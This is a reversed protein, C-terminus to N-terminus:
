FLTESAAAGSPKEPRRVDQVPENKADEPAVSSPGDFILVRSRRKERDQWGSFDMQQTARQAALQSVDLLWIDYRQTTVSKVTESRELLHVFRLHRLLEMRDIMNRDSADVLFYARKNGRCFDTLQNILVRLQAAEEPADKQMDDLKAPALVGAARNVDEVTVRHMGAKTTSPRNRAEEIAAGAITLYDRAICGSALAMRDLSNPSFLKDISVDAKPALERIIDQLWASSVQLRQMGDDLAILHADHGMQMGTPRQDTTYTQTLYRISGIKLWYGSDKILRHLYGLVQPQDARNLHYVDDVLIVGGSTIQAARTLLTKFDPLARELFEGKSSVVTERSQVSREDLAGISGKVGTERVSVTGVIEASSRAAHARTWEISSELPAFKLRKLNEQVASLGDLLDTVEKSRRAFLRRWWPLEGRKAILRSEVSDRVGGVVTEVSSVLVDPFSLNAFVEQDVWVALQGAASRESQLKRLLTSKGSGRQGFILHHYNAAAKEANVPPIYVSAQGDPRARTAEQLVILFRSAEPGLFYPPSEGM